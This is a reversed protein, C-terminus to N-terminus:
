QPLRPDPFFERMMFDELGANDRARASLTLSRGLRQSEWLFDEQEYERIIAIMKRVVAIRIDSNSGKRVEIQHAMNRRIEKNWGFFIFEATDFGMREIQFVGGSKTPDYGFTLPRRSALNAAVIRNTRANDDEVPPANSASGPSAAPASEARARRRAEIYSALDGDAPPHAPPPATVAPATPPPITPAPGNLAITPPTPRPRAVAKPLPAQPAPSPPPAPAPSPPPALHVVLPGRADGREPADLSPLRVRPLWESLVAIHILLSLAITVWITPVTVGDRRNRSEDLWKSM